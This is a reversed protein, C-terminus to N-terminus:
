DDEEQESDLELSRAEPAQDFFLKVEQNHARLVVSDRVISRVAWLDDIYDGESVIYSTGSSEIIALPGGRSGYLVGTLKMPDSFPDVSPNFASGGQDENPDNDSDDDSRVQQPLVEATGETDEAIVVEPDVAEIEQDNNTESATRNNLITISYIGLIVALVLLSGAIIIFLRSKVINLIRSPRYDLDKGPDENQM